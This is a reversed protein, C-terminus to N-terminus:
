GEMTGLQINFRRNISPMASATREFTRRMRANKQRYAACLEREGVKGGRAHLDGGAYEGGRVDRVARLAAAGERAEPLADNGCRRGEAYGFRRCASRKLRIKGSREDNRKIYIYIYIQM